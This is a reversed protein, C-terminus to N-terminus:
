FDLKLCKSFFHSWRAKHGRKEKFGHLVNVITWHLCGCNTFGQNFKSRCKLNWDERGAKSSTLKMSVGEWDGGHFDKEEVNRSM